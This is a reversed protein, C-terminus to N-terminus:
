SSTNSVIRTSVLASGTKAAPCRGTGLVFVAAANVVSPGSGTGPFSLAEAVTDSTPATPFQIQNASRPQRDGILEDLLHGIDVRPRLRDDGRGADLALRLRPEVADVEGGVVQRGVPACPRHVLRDLDVAAEAAEPTLHRPRRSPKEHRRPLRQRRRRDIDVRDGLRHRM